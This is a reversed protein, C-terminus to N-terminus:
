GVYLVEGKADQMRYVGPKSPLTRVFQAIVSAGVSQATGPSNEDDIIPVGTSKEDEPQDAM